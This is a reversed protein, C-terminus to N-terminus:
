GAIETVTIYSIGRESASADSDTVTRNLYFTQGSSAIFGVKYTLQSTSSPADFYDYRVWNPTSANDTSYYPNNAIAIGSKRSSGVQPAALKTTDRYFFFLSDWADYAQEHFVGASIM